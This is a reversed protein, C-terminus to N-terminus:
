PKCLLAHRCFGGADELDHFTKAIAWVKEEKLRPGFWVWTSQQLLEIETTPVPENLRHTFRPTQSLDRLRDRQETSAARWIRFDDLQPDDFSEPSSLLSLLGLLDGDIRPVQVERVTLGQRRASDILFQMDEDFDADSVLYLGRLGDLRPLRILEEVHRSANTLLVDRVPTRDFLHIEDQLFGAASNLVQEVFGRRFGWTGGTGFLHSRLWSGPTRISPRLTNRLPREWTSQHSELLERERRIAEPWSRDQERLLELTIQIRVLDARALDEGTKAWHDALRLRPTDNDPDAIVAQLLAEISSM